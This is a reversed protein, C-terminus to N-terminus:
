EAFKEAMAQAGPMGPADWMALVMDELRKRQTKEEELQRELSEIRGTLDEFDKAFILRVHGLDDRRNNQGEPIHPAEPFNVAWGGARM